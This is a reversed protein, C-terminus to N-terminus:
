KKKRERSKNRKLRRNTADSIKHYLYGLPIAVCIIAMVMLIYGFLRGRQHFSNTQDSDKDTNKGYSEDVSNSADEEQLNGLIEEALLLQSESFRMPNEKFSSRELIEFSTKLSLNGREHSVQEKEDINFYCSVWMAYFSLRLLDEHNMVQDKSISKIIELNDTSNSYLVKTSIEYCNMMKRYKEAKSVGVDIQDLDKESFHSQKFSSFQETLQRMFNSLNKDKRTHLTDDAVALFITSTTVSSSIKNLQVDSSSLFLLYVIIFCWQLYLNNCRYGYIAGKTLNSPNKTPITHMSVVSKANAM